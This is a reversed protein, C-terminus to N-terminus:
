RRLIFSYFVCLVQKSEGNSNADCAGGSAFGSVSSMQRRHGLTSLAILTMNFYEDHTTYVNVTNLHEHFM